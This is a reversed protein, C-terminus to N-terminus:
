VVSKRDLFDSGNNNGYGDGDTDVSDTPDLPLDDTANAVGDADKDDDCADGLTDGNEFTADTNLQDTNAIDLCNDQNDGINDGDTDITESADDIFADCVNGLADGDNNLQDLNAVTLCNDTNDGVKDQDTDKSETPDLPFDDSADLVGDADDDDDCADGLADGNEFDADTNLQDDNAVNPCNDQANSRSDGDTNPESSSGGGGCATLSLCLAILPLVKLGNHNM